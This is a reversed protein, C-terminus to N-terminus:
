KRNKPPIIKKEIALNGIMKIRNAQTDIEVVSQKSIKGGILDPVEHIFDNEQVIKDLFNLETSAYDVKAILDFMYPIRDNIDFGVWHAIIELIGSQNNNKIFGNDTLNVFNIKSLSDAKRNVKM